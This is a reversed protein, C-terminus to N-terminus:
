NTKKKEHMKNGIWNAIPTLAVPAIFRYVMDSLIIKKSTEIGKKYHSLEESSLHKNLKEFNKKIVELKKDSAIDFTYAMATSFVHVIGQNIALTKRKKEDLKKNNLTKFVYMGSLLTGGIVILHTFLHKTEKTELILKKALKTDILKGFGHAITEELQNMQKKAILYGNFNINKNTKHKQQNINFQPSVKQIMM